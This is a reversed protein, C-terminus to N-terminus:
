KLNISRKKTAIIVMMKMFLKKDRNKRHVDNQNQSNKHERDDIMMNQSITKNTVNQTQGIDARRYFYSKKKTKKKNENKKANKRSLYRINMRKKERILRTKEFETKFIIENIQRIIANRFYSHFVKSLNVYKVYNLFQIPLQIEFTNMHNIFEIM